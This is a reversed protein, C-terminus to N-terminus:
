LFIKLEIREWRISSGFLLYLLSISGPIGLVIWLSTVVYKKSM